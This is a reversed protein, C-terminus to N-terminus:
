TILFEENLDVSITIRRKPELYFEFTFQTGFMSSYSFSTNTIEVLKEEFSTGNTKLAEKQTDSSILVFMNRGSMDTLDGCLLIHLMKGLYNPIHQNITQM